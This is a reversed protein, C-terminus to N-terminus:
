NETLGLAVAAAFAAMCDHATTNALLPLPLEFPECIGRLTMISRNLSLTVREPTRSTLSITNRGSIGYTLVAIGKLASVNFGADADAAAAFVNLKEPLPANEGIILVSNPSDLATLQGASIVDECPFIGESFYAAANCNGLIIVSM